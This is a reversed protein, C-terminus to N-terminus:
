ESDSRTASSSMTRSGVQHDSTRRWAEVRQVLNERTVRAAADRKASEQRVNSTLPQRVFPVLQQARQEADHIGFIERRRFDPTMEGGVPVRM